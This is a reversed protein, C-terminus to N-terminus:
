KQLPPDEGDPLPTHTLLDDDIRSILSEAVSEIEDTGNAPERGERIKFMEDAINLAALVAVTLPEAFPYRKRVDEIRSKVHASLRNLHETTEESQIVFSAGLVDIRLQRKEM